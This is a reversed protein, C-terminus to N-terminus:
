QMAEMTEIVEELDENAQAIVSNMESLIEQALQDFREQEHDLESM